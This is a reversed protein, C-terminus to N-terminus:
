FPVFIRKSGWKNWFYFILWLTLDMMCFPPLYFLHFSLMNYNIQHYKGLNINFFYPISKFTYSLSETIYNQWDLVYWSVQFLILVGGFAFMKTIFTQLLVSVEFFFLLFVFFVLCLCFLFCCILDIRDYLTWVISTSKFRDSVIIILVRYVIYM